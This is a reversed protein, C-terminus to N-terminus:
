SFSRKGLNESLCHNAAIMPNELKVTKYVLLYVISWSFSAPAYIISAYVAHNQQHM